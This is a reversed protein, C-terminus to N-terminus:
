LEGDNARRKIEEDSERLNRSWRDETETATKEISGRDLRRVILGALFACVGLGMLAFVGKAEKTEGGFALVMYAGPALFLSVVFVSAGGFILVSSAITKM